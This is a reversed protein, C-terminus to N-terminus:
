AAPTVEVLVMTSSDCRYSFRHGQVAIISPEGPKVMRVTVGERLGLEALRHLWDESAVMEVVRGCESAQLLDIPVIQSCTVSSSSTMVM